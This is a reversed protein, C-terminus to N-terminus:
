IRCCEIRCCEICAARVEDAHGPLTAEANKSHHGRWLKVTGDQSASVLLRSDCSWCVQYVRGVHGTLTMLFRGTRGDWVKIKKDFSASALYLGNPSFAIDTVPQCHGTLRAISHKSETPAWMFLTFDDSGSVLREGEAPLAETYRKLAEQQAEKPTDFETYEHGYPGTRCVYDVNLALTNVRHGHGSLTRVLKGLNRGEEEV